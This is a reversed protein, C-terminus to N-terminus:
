VVSKRDTQLGYRSALALLAAASPEYKARDALNLFYNPTRLSYDYIERVDAQSLQPAAKDLGKLYDSDASDMYALKKIIKVLSPWWLKFDPHDSLGALRAQLALRLLAPPRAGGEIGDYRDENFFTQQIVRSFTRCLKPVERHIPMCWKLFIADEQIKLKAGWIELADSALKDQDITFNSTFCIDDGLSLIVFEGACWKDSLGPHQRDLCSLLVALGYISDMESTLKFGSCWPSKMGGFATVMNPVASYSPLTIEMLPYLQRFMSTSWKFLGAKEMEEMIMIVVPKWMATDMGSFDISWPYKGQAQLRPIYRSRSEPDHWLGLTAQRAHSMQVYLPSLLFNVAYPAPYVFRIRNYVGTAQWQAQYGGDIREWLPTPKKFPGFRTAIVPSFYTAGPYGLSEGMSIIRSVWESPSTRDPDPTLALTLWRRAPTQEGAGFFPAGTLTDPPDDDMMALTRFDRNLLDKIKPVYVRALIKRVMARAEPHHYVDPIERDCIPSQLFWGTPKWQQMTIKELDELEMRALISGDQRSTYHSLMNAILVQLEDYVAKFRSFDGYVPIKGKICDQNSLERNRGNYVEQRYYSFPLDTLRVGRSSLEDVLHGSTLPGGAEAALPTLEMKYGLRSPLLRGMGEQPSSHSLHEGESLGRASYARSESAKM